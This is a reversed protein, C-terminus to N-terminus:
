QVFATQGGVSAQHQAAGVDRFNTTLGAPFTLPDGVSQLLAGAGVTNNLLFNSAAANVFVSGATVPIAGVNAMPNANTAVGVSNNNFYSVNRLNKGQGTFNFGASAVSVGNNEAHSDVVLGPANTTSAAFGHQGNSVAVCHYCVQNSYGITTAGTNGYSLCDVCYLTTIPTATNAWAECAICIATGGFVAASNTTAGCKYFIPTGSTATNFNKFLCNTFINAGSTLKAATQTNGDFIINKYITASTTAITVTTTNIQITPRNDSNGLTRSSTYGQMFVVTAGSFTGGAVNGTASTISYVSAGDAGVNLLFIVNGSIALSNAQGPSLLAGGINMTAGTGTTLGTSRDVVITTSNTFTIVQYWASAISGTGGSVNIINGVIAASFNATASTITTTGNTVADTTSINITASQCSTCAVANKNAFLSMDTGSAGTVFGGGNTDSGTLRVEFVSQASIASFARSAFLLVVLLKKM